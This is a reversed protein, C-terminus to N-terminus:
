EGANSIYNNLKGGNLDTKELYVQWCYPYQARQAKWNSIKVRLPNLENKQKISIRSKFNYYQGEPRLVWDKLNPIYAKAKATRKDQSKKLIDINFFYTGGSHRSKLGTSLIYTKINEM